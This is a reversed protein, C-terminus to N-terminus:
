HVQVIDYPCYSSFTPKSCLCGSKLINNNLIISVRSQKQSCGPMRMSKEMYDIFVYVMDPGTPYPHALEGVFNKSGRGYLLTRSAPCIGCGPSFRGPHRAVPELWTVLESWGPVDSRAHAM